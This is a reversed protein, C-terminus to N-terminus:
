GQYGEGGEQNKMTSLEEKLGNVKNVLEKIEEREMRMEEIFSKMEEGTAEGAEKMDGFVGAMKEKSNNVMQCTTGGVALAGQTGKVAATRASRKIIPGLTYTLAAVGLGVIFGQTGFPKLIKM